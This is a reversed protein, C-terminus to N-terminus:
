LMGLYEGLYIDLIIERSSVYFLLIHFLCNLQGLLLIARDGGHEFFFGFDGAFPIDNVFLSKLLHLLLPSDESEGQKSDPPILLRNRGPIWGRCTPGPTADPRRWLHSSLSLLRFILM